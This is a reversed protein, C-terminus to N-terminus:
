GSINQIVVLYESIEQEIFNFSYWLYTAAKLLFWSLYTSREKQKYSM